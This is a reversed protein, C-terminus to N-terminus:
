HVGRVQNTVIAVCASTLVLRVATRVINWVTRNVKRFSFSSRDFEYNKM